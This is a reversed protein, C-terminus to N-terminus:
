KINLKNKDDRVLDETINSYSPDDESADIHIISISTVTTLWEKIRKELELLDESKEIDIDRQRKAMREALMSYPATLKIILDPLSLFLRLTAYLRKPSFM